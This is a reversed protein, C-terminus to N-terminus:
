DNGLAGQKRNNMGVLEHCGVLRRQVGQRYSQTNMGESYEKQTTYQLRRVSSKM